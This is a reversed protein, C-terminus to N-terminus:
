AHSRRSSTVGYRRRAGGRRCVRRRRSGCRQRGTGSRGTVHGRVPCWVRRPNEPQGFLPQRQSRASNTSAMPITVFGEAWQDRGVTYTDTMFCNPEDCFGPFLRARAIAAESTSITDLVQRVQSANDQGNGNQINVRPDGAWPTKFVVHSGGTRRPPGFYNHECVKLLDDSVQRPMSLFPWTEACFVESNSTEHM